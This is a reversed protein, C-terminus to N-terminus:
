EHDLPIMYALVEGFGALNTNRNVDDRKAEVKERAYKKLLELVTRAERSDKIAGNEWKQLLDLEPISAKSWVVWLREQGKEKDFIMPVEREENAKLRAPRMTNLDPTEPTSKPGENLVYLYGEAPSSIVLKVQYGAEFVREGSLRFPDEFPKGNRYKQVMVHYQLASKPVAPPPPPEPKHLALYSLPLGVALAMTASGYIVWRRPLRVAPPREMQQTKIKTPAGANGAETTALSYLHLRVGHKVKCDGLDTLHPSWNSLQLLMDAVTSSVLIHGADGCDMVRQAMNIGGGAVNANANMDAVRYVPGTHIGMRLKLHPKTKLMAAVEVACQAPATPDGFFALAMGDGTPLNIIDGAADASRFQPSERVVQQLQQLYDKQQDMPLLSYGVLDTFLVHAMEIAGTAAPKRVQEAGLLARSLDDGFERPSAHRSAPDYSMAKVIAKTAATPLNLDKQTGPAAGTLMECSLVALSYTDSAACAQGAYQEPSMYSLSGAVKTEEGRFQSNQIGAIGFDILKVHDEGGHNQLMVNEPKLDRHWVGKEHAASLAHGIQRIIGAARRHEMGGPKIASRLTAGEVFQMVLFQNGEPTLGTDLAGVVGPHEIRALAEMEQLFKQRIWPDQSSEKLLIKVVVRKSLLQRDQALYVVSMGGRGLEKQIVYRDALVVGASMTPTPPNDAAVDVLGEPQVSHLKALTGANEDAKLLTEVEQRLDDDDGSESRVFALRTASDRELARDFLAKIQQWREATM